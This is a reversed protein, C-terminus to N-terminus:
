ISMITLTAIVIIFVGIVTWIAIKKHIDDSERILYGYFEKTIYILILLFIIRILPSNSFSFGPFLSLFVGLFLCVLEFFFLISLFISLGASVRM